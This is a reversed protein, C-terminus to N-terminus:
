ELKSKNKFTYKGASKPSDSKPAEARKKAKAAAMAKLVPGLPLIVFEESKKGKGEIAEMRNKKEQQNEREKEVEAVGSDKLCRVSFLYANAFDLRSVDAMKTMNRAYVCYMGPHYAYSGGSRTASWWYGYNGVNGFMGSANCCGGPLASFGFEDTGCGSHGDIDSPWESKAKLKKGAIEKGGAFDVLEQWEEDSPLHWGPPCVKMATKYNYLKGYKDGNAPDNKYCSGAVEYNLNEAMWVQEGIKVTKYVKGDRPDTFSERDQLCRVSLSFTKPASIFNGGADTYNLRCLIANSADDDDQTASWWFGYNGVAHFTGDHFRCGGPLAFFGFEDTGCGSNGEKNNEWGSKAKLKEGAIEEDGAFDVLEQWEVDSPLRWGPPCAIKATEWNYLRGYKKGNAPDNEYCVSGEADYALNEAMWVQEGIKVTKYVKGDRPDTFTNEM